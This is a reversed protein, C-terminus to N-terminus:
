QSEEKPTEATHKAEASMPKEETKPTGPKASLPPAEEKTPEPKVEPKTEAPAAKPETHKASAEVKPAEPKVEAKLEQSKSAASKAEEKPAEKKESPVKKAKKAVKEKREVAKEECVIEIHTRKMRRGRKRGAHFPRAAQHACAHVIVLNSSSLGKQQANAELNELVSLISKATSCLYRGPGMGPKHAVKQNFRFLKIPRRLSVADNLMRKADTINKNKIHRCIEISEKTSVGLDRGSARAMSQPNWAQHAYNHAM